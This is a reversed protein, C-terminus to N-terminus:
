AVPRIGLQALYHQVTWQWNSSHIFRNCMTRTSKLQTTLQFRMMRISRNAEIFADTEHVYLANGTRSFEVCIVDEQGKFRMLFASTGQGGLVKSHTLREKVQARLRYADDDSLAVQADIAREIYKLWFDRRGHPDDTIVFKFFFLLDGKAMWGVVRQKAEHDVLAWNNQRTPLRPDGFRPSDLLFAKVEGHIRDDQSAPDWLILASIARSAASATVAGCPLFEKTLQRFREYAAEGRLSQKEREFRRTWEEVAANVAAEGLGSSTEIRWQALTEELGVPSALIQEGFWAPASPSFLRDAVNRCSEIRDSKGTYKRVASRLMKEMVLPEPMRRWEAVYSEILGEIWRRNKALDPHHNLGAVFVPDTASAPDWCLARIHRATLPELRRGSRVWERKAEELTTASPKTTTQLASELRETATVLGQLVQTPDLTIALEGGLPTREVARLRELVDFIASMGETGTSHEHHKASQGLM